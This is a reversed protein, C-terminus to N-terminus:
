HKKKYLELYTCTSKKMIELKIKSVKWCKLSLWRKNEFMVLETSLQYRTLADGGIIKYRCVIIGWLHPMFM